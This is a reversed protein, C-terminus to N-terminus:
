RAGGRALRRLERWVERSDHTRLFAVCAVHPHYERPDCLGMGCHWCRDDQIRNHILDGGITLRDGDRTLALNQILRPDGPLEYVTNAHDAATMGSPETPETM